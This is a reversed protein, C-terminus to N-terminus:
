ADLITKQENENVTELSEEAETPTGQWARMALHHGENTHAGEVLCISCYPPLKCNEARHNKQVFRCRSCFAHPGQRSWHTPARFIARGEEKDVLQRRGDPKSKMMQKITNTLDARTSQNMRNSRNELRAIKKEIAERLDQLEKRVNDIESLPDQHHPDNNTTPRETGRYAGLQEKIDQIHKGQDDVVAEILMLRKETNESLKSSRKVVEERFPAAIARPLREINNLMSNIQEQVEARLEEHQDQLNKGLEVTELKLKELPSLPLQELKNGEYPAVAEEIKPRPKAESQLQVSDENGSRVTELHELIESMKKTLDGIQELSEARPM